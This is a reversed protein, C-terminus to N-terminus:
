LFRPAAASLGCHSSAVCKDPQNIYVNSKRLAAYWDAQSRTQQYVSDSLQLHGSHNTSACPEGGYPGDTEVM